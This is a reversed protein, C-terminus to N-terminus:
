RSVLMDSPGTAQKNRATLISEKSLSGDSFNISM